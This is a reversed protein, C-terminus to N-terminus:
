GAPGWDGRRLATNALSIHKTGTHREEPSQTRHDQCEEQKRRSRGNPQDEADKTLPTHRTGDRRRTAEQPHFCCRLPCSSSHMHAHTQKEGGVRLILTKKPSILSFHRKSAPSFSLVQALAELILFLNFSPTSPMPPFLKGHLSRM